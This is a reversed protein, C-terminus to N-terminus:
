NHDVKAPDADWLIEQFVPEVEDMNVWKREMPCETIAGGRIYFAGAFSLTRTKDM